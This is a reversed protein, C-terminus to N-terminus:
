MSSAGPKSTGGLVVGIGVLAGGVLAGVLGAQLVDNSTATLAHKSEPEEEKERNAMMVVPTMPVDVWQVKWPSGRTDLLIKQMRCFLEHVADIEARYISVSECNIGLPVGAGACETLIRRLHGCLVKISKDVPSDAQLIEREVQEPVRVGLWKIFHMTKPKSVPCFTLVIKKPTVAQKRCLTAYDRILRITPECDYVAQSIFWDAGNSQKRMMNLHETPYQKNRSHAAEMTHREAICVCGFKLRKSQRVHEMAAPLTPGAYEAQSSPRGVLNVASHGHEESARRTWQDFDADAVCKYVLCDNYRTLMAAYASSDMLERFPFPRDGRPEDQIDYVIFGDSALTNSRAAFKDGIEQCKELPTGKAPPVHGLLFVPRSPDALKDALSVSNQCPSAM